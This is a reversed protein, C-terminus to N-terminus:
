KPKNNEVRYDYKEKKFLDFVQIQLIVIKEKSFLDKDKNQFIIIKNIFCFYYM